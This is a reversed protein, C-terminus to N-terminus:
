NEEKPKLVTIAMTNKSLKEIVKKASDIEINLYHNYIDTIYEGYNLIDDQIDNNVVEIEDFSMILSSISSKVKREIEKETITLSELTEKVRKIFYDPYETAVMIAQILYDDTLTLFTSISDTIVGGTLLEDKLLSTAGFNIRMILNMYIRLELETLKLTKFNSKPIKLCVTVKEKDVPMEKELYESKVKPPEKIEKMVPKIYEPFEFEKMTDLAIAVAEEPSFNGTIILFMNEPHYFAEYAINLDDATMKKIDEVTGSILYQREDKIFINRFMGYVIESAPKDNIMKIEETIIGKEGTVLEKTFHPTFVYKLLYSLNDKFKSNAFVEYCTVDYSTFANINSGLQGFYDHANTGDPMNFLLHELFHATGKPLKYSKGNYKFDTHISGFNTSLTAYYNKVRDNPVMIIQLGNDLKETYVYEGTKKIETKKM